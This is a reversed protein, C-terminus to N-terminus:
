LTFTPRLDFIRLKGDAKILLPFFNGRLSWYFQNYRDTIRKNPRYHVEHNRTYRYCTTQENIRGGAAARM